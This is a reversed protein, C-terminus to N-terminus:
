FQKFYRQQGKVTEVYRLHSVGQCQVLRIILALVLIRWLVCDQPWEVLWKGECISGLCGRNIDDKDRIDFLNEWLV